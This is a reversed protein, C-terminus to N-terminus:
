NLCEVVLSLMGPALRDQHLARRRSDRTWQRIRGEMAAPQVPVLEVLPQSAIVMGRFAALRAPFRRDARVAHDVGESRHMLRDRAGAPAGDRALESARVRESLKALRDLDPLPLSRRASMESPAASTTPRSPALAAHEHGYVQYIREIL